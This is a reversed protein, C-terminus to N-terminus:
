AEKDENTFSKNMTEIYFKRAWLAYGVSVVCSLAIIALSIGILWLAM